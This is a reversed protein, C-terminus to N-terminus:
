KAAKKKRRVMAIQQWKYDDIVIPQLQKGAAAMRDGALWAQEMVMQVLDGSTCGELIPPEYVTGDVWTIEIKPSIPEISYYLFVKDKPFMSEFHTARRYFAMVSKQINTGYGMLFPCITVTIKDMYVNHIQNHKTRPALVSLPRQAGMHVPVHEPYQVERQWIESNALSGHWSKFLWTPKSKPDVYQVKPLPKMNLKGRKVSLYEFERGGKGYDTDCKAHKYHQHYLDKAGGEGFHGLSQATYKYGNHNGRWMNYGNLPYNFTYRNAGSKYM